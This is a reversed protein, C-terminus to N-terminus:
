LGAFTGIPVFLGEVALQFNTFADFLADLAALDQLTLPEGGADVWQTAPLSPDGRISAVPHGDV